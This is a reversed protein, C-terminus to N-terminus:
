VHLDPLLKHMASMLSLGVATCADALEEAAPVSDHAWMHLQLPHLSHCYVAWGRLSPTCGQAAEIHLPQMGAVDGGKQIMLTLALKQQQMPAKMRRSHAACDAIRLCGEDHCVHSLKLHISPGHM